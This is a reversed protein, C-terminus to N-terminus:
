DSTFIINFSKVLIILSLPSFNVPFSKFASGKTTARAFSLFAITIECSPDRPLMPLGLIGSRHLM